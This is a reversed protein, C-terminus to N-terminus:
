SAASDANGLAIRHSVAGLPTGGAGYTREHFEAEGTAPLLVMSSSRTGYVDSVIFPPSLQRERSLGIGTDPLAHDAAPTRAGLAVFLADVLAAPASAALADRLAATGAVVKPWPTDLLHNSLGHVGPEVMAPQAARNSVFWLEDGDDVLLSYGNFEAGQRLVETAYAAANATGRLFEAVLVGRSRPATKAGHGERYNTVAAFRGRRSLGMWTGGQELDRGAFIAPADPWPAVPSAPRAYREDRNAAIVLRYRAGPAPDYAFLILCM